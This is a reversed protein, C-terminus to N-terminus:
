THFGWSPLLTTMRLMDTMLKGLNMEETNMGGLALQLLQGAIATAQLCVEWQM